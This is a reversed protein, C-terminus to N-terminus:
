EEKSLLVVEGDDSSTAIQENERVVRDVISPLSDRAQSITFTQM